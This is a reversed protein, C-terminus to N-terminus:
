SYQVELLFICMFIYCQMGRAKLEREAFILLLLPPPPPVNRCLCMCICVYGCLHMCAYIFHVYMCVHM